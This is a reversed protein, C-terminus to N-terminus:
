AVHPSGQTDGRGAAGRWAPGHIVIGLRERWSRARALDRGIAVYEHFAITLLSFSDIDKTLGYEVPADEPAFTGFVRDWVILIGGYNRDLYEPNKGHHVRHHSPTNMVAEFWRPLRDIAETHVWYQYVLNLGASVMIMWPAVGLLALGPYFVFGAFPTWPQRLATSLNYHRSSHHNVHCAWLVRNEHEVRHNWYYAFDWGILAAAWGLAGRGLDFLRHPWLWTALGFIGLNILSVFVLSGIGMGLSAITDRREYGRVDKGRRRLRALLAPEIALTALFFPIAYLTPEPYPM